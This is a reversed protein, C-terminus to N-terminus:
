SELAIRSISLRMADRSMGSELFKTYGDRTKFIAITDDKFFENLDSTAEYIEFDNYNALHINRVDNMPANRKIIVCGDYEDFLYPYTVLKM